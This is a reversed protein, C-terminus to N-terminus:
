SAVNPPVETDGEVIEPMAPFKKFGDAWTDPFMLISFPHSTGLSRKINCTSCSYPSLRVLNVCYM